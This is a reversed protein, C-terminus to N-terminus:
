SCRMKWKPIRLKWGPKSWEKEVADRFRLYAGSNYAAWATFQDGRVRFIKHAIHVNACADFYEDETHGPQAVDNLQFLGRDISAVTECDDKLNHHWARTYRQSEATMVAVADILEERHWGHVSCLALANKIDLQHGEFDWTVGKIEDCM